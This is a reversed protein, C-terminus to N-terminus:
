RDDAALERGEKQSNSDLQEDETNQKSTLEALSCNGAENKRNEMIKRNSVDDLEILMRGDFDDYKMVNENWRQVNQM